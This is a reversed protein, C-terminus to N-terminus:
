LAPRETPKQGTPELDDEMFAWSEQDLDVAYSWEGRANPAMAVVPGERGVIQVPGRHRENVQVIEHFWFNPADTGSHGITDWPMLTWEIASVGSIRTDKSYGSPDSRVSGLLTWSSAIREGLDITEVIM